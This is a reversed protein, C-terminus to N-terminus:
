FWTKFHLEIKFRTCFAHSIPTFDAGMSNPISPFRRQSWILSENSSSISPTVPISSFWSDRITLVANLTTGPESRTTAREILYLIVIMPHFPKYHTYTIAYMILSM